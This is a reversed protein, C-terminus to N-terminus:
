NGSFTIGSAAREAETPFFRAHFQMRQRGFARFKIQLMQTKVIALAPQQGNHPIKKASTGHRFLLSPLNGKGDRNFPPPRINTQGNGKGHGFQNPGNAIDARVKDAAIGKVCTRAFADCKVLCDHHAHQVM